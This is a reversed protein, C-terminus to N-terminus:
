TSGIIGCFSPHHYYKDQNKICVFSLIKCILSFGGRYLSGAMFLGALTQPDPCTHIQKKPLGSERALNGSAFTPPPCLMVETISQSVKMKHSLCIDGTM